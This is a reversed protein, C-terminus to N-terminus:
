PLLYLMIWRKIIMVAKYIINKREAMRMIFEAIAEVLDIKGAKADEILVDPDDYKLFNTFSYLGMLM